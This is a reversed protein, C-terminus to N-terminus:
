QPSVDAKPNLTLWVQISPRVASPFSEVRDARRTFFAFAPKNSLLVVGRVRPYGQARLDNLVHDLLLDPVRLGTRQLFTHTRYRPLVGFSIVEAFAGDAQRIKERRREWLLLAAGPLRAVLAPRRLLARLTQRFVFPLHSRLAAEHLMTSNGTYAALGVPQGAVEVFVAQMMGTRILHSYCYTKLLHEGLQAIPGIQGFLKIHLRAAALADTPNDPDINRV